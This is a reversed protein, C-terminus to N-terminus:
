HGLEHHLMMNGRIELRSPFLVAFDLILAGQFQL